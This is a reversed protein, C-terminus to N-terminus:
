FSWIFSDRLSLSAWFGQLIHDKLEFLKSYSDKELKEFFFLHIPKPAREIPELQLGPYNRDTQKAQFLDFLVLTLAM